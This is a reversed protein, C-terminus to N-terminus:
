PGIGLYVPEQGLSGRERRVVAVLCGHRVEARVAEVPVVGRYAWVRPSGAEARQRGHAM